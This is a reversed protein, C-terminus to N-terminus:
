TAVMLGGTGPLYELPPPPVTKWAANEVRYGTRVVETTLGRYQLWLAQVAIQINEQSLLAQGTMERMKLGDQM